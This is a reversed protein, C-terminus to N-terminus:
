EKIKDGSTAPSKSAPSTSPRAPASPQEAPQQHATALNVPAPPDSPSWGRPEWLPVSPAPFKARGETQEHQLWVFEQDVPETSVSWGHMSWFARAEDGVVLAKVGDADVIWYKKPESM